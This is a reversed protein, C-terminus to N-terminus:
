PRIAARWGDPVRRHEDFSGSGTITLRASPTDLGSIELRLRLHPDRVAAKLSSSGVNLALVVPEEDRTGEVRGGDAVDAPALLPRPGRRSRDKTPRPPRVRAEGLPLAAPLPRLPM